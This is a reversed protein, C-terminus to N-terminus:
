VKTRNRFKLKSIMLLGIGIMAYAPPEPVASGFPRFAAYNPDYSMADNDIIQVNGTAWQLANTRIVLVQSVEGIGVSNSGAGFTFTLNTGLSNLAASVPSNGATGAQFNVAGNGAGDFNYAIYGLDTIAFGAFSSEVLKTIVQTSASNNAFQYLFDLTGSSSRFVAASLVGSWLQDNKATSPDDNNVSTTSGTVYTASYPNLVTFVTTTNGATLAAANMAPIFFWLACLLGAFRNIM